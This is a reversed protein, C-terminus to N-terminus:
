IGGEEECTPDKDEDDSNGHKRKKGAEMREDFDNNSASSASSEEDEPDPVCKIFLEDGKKINKTAKVFMDSMVMANPEFPPEEGEELGWTPDNMMQLGMTKASHGERCKHHWLPHCQVEKEQFKPQMSCKDDGDNGGMHLGIFAGKKFDRDAFCGLGADEITSEKIHLWNVVDLARVHKHKTLTGPDGVKRNEDLHFGVWFEKDEMDLETEQKEKRDDIHLLKTAKQAM